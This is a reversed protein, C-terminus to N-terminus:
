RARPAEGWSRGDHDLLIPVFPLNIAPRMPDGVIRHM